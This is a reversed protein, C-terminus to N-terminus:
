NEIYKDLESNIASFAIDIDAITLQKDEVLVNILWKREFEIKEKLKATKDKEM